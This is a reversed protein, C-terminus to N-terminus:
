VGKEILVVAEEASVVKAKMGWLLSTVNTVVASRNGWKIGPTKLELKGQLWEKKDARGGRPGRVFVAIVKRNTFWAGKIREEVYVVTAQIGLEVSVGAEKTGRVM